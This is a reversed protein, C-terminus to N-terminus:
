APRSFSVGMNDSAEGPRWGGGLVGDVNFYGVNVLYGDASRSSTWDSADELERKFAPSAPDGAILFLSQYVESSRRRFKQNVAMNALKGAVFKGRKDVDKALFAALKDLEADSAENEDAPTLIGLSKAHDRLLKTQEFYNKVKSEPLLDASELFWGTRPVENFFVPDKNEWYLSEKLAFVPERHGAISYKKRLYLGMNKVTAPQGNELTAIRLVLREGRSEAEELEKKSLTLPPIDKIDLTVGFVEKIREPGYYRDKFIEKAQELSVKGGRERRPPRPDSEPTDVKTIKGAFEPPVLFYEGIQKIEPKAGNQPPKESM